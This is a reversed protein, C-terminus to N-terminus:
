LLRRLEANEDQIIHNIEELEQLREEKKAGKEM